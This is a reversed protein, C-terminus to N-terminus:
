FHLSAFGANSVSCTSELRHSWYTDVASSCLLLLPLLNLGPVSGGLVTHNHWLGLVSRGGCDKAIFHSDGMSAWRHRACGILDMWAMLFEPVSVFDLFWTRKAFSLASCCQKRDYGNIYISCWQVNLNEVVFMSGQMDGPGTSYTLINANRDGKIHCTLYRFLISQITAHLHRHFIPNESRNPM